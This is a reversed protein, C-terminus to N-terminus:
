GRTQKRLDRASMGMEDNWRNVGVLREIGLRDQTSTERRQLDEPLSEVEGPYGVAFIALIRVDDPAEFAARAAPESFSAMPHAVLGMSTAQAMLNGAVIGAHFPWLERTSGDGAEITMDHAPVSALAFLLPAAPAWSLNGQGLAALLRQRADASAAVLIRASQANGHSPAIQAARWLAEQVDAPIPTPAFARRARRKTLAELVTAM